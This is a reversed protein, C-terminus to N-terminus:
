VITRGVEGTAQAVVPMVPPAQEAPAPTTVPTKTKSKKSMQFDGKISRTAASILVYVILARIATEEAGFTITAVSALHSVKM